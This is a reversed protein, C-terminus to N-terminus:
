LMILRQTGDSNDCLVFVQRKTTDVAFDLGGSVDTSIVDVVGATTDVDLLVDTTLLILRGFDPHRHAALVPGAVTVAIEANALGANPRAAVLVRGAREVVAVGLGDHMPVAAVPATYGDGRMASRRDMLRLTHVEGDATTYWVTNTPEDFHIGVPPGALTITM